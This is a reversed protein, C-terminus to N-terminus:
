KDSFGEPGQWLNIMVAATLIISFRCWRLAAGFLCRVLHVIRDTVGLSLPPETMLVDVSPLEPYLGTTVSTDLDECELFRMAEDLSSTEAMGMSSLATELAYTAPANYFSALNEEALLAFSQLNAFSCSSPPSPLETDSLHTQTPPHIEKSWTTQLEGLLSTNRELPCGADSNPHESATPTHQGSWQGRDRLKSLVHRHDELSENLQAIHTFQRQYAEQLHTYGQQTFEFKDFQQRLTELNQLASTLRQKIANKAFTLGTNETELLALKESLELAIATDGEDEENAYTGESPPHLRQDTQKCHPTMSELEQIKAAALDLSNRLSDIEQELEMSKTTNTKDMDASKSLAIKLMEEMERNKQELTEILSQRAKQSTIFRMDENDDEIRTSTVSGHDLGVWEKEETYSQAQQLLHEYKTKLAMNNELLSKGIEAALLLDKEKEKMASYTNKLLLVLDGASKEAVWSVSSM